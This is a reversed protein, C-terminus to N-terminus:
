NVYPVLGRAMSKLDDFEERANRYTRGPVERELVKERTVVNYVYFTVKRPSSSNASYDLLAIIVFDIGGSRDDIVDYAVSRLLDGQPMSNLRLLPANSVIHGAEFFVDLFANEWIIGQRTIEMNENVGAEVVYFAVMSAFGSFSVAVGFILTFMLVKFNAKLM